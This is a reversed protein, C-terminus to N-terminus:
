PEWRTSMKRANNSGRVPESAGDMIEAEVLYRLAGAVHADLPWCTTLVLNRGPALPDIGSADWTVISTRKIRFWFSAGDRRTVKIVDGIRIRDLFAFHTDRHAAYVATGPEGPEPTREVQGPGFALAQGSSGHLVIASANLRPVEVRAVPWTDAWPWPKVNQATALTRAFARELLRQALWAKAHIWLAQGILIAGCIVLLLAVSNWLAGRRVGGMAPLIVSRM